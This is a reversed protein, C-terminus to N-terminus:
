GNKSGRAFRFIRALCAIAIESRLAKLALFDRYNKDAKVKAKQRVGQLVLRKQEPIKKRLKVRSREEAIRKVKVLEAMKLQELLRKKKLGRKAKLKKQRSLEKLLKKLKLERKRVLMKPSAKQKIPKDANVKTKALENLQNQEDQSLLSVSKQLIPNRKKFEARQRIMKLSFQRSLELIRSASMPQGEGGGYMRFDRRGSMSPGNAPYRSM